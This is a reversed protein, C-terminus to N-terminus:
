GVGDNRVSCALKKKGSREQSATPRRIHSIERRRMRSESLILWAECGGREEADGFAFAEAFDESDVAAIKGDIAEV